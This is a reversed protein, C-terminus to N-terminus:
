DLCRAAQGMLEMTKRLFTLACHDVRLIFYRGPLFQRYQKLGFIVALLERRTTSYNKEAKSLVRNAYAIVCLRDHQQQLVAGLDTLSADTDLVFQGEDRPLALVSATILRNLLEHRPRTTAGSMFVSLWEEIYIILTSHELFVFLVVLICYFFNFVAFICHSQVTVCRADVTKKVVCARSSKGARPATEAAFRRRAVFQSSTAVSPGAAVGRRM